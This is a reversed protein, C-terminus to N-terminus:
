IWKWNFISENFTQLSSEFINSQLLNNLSTKQEKSMKWKKYAIKNIWIRDFRVTNSCISYKCEWLIAGRKKLYNITNLYDGNEHTIIELMKKEFSDVNLFECNKARIISIQRIPKYYYGVPLFLSNLIFARRRLLM